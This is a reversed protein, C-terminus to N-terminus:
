ALWPTSLVEASGKLINTTGGIQDAMVLRKAATELSPPVVLLTPQVKLPKGNDGKVSRMSAIAASLNAESLEAKSAFAMQWLGYGANVRCDVGYRYLKQNFVGEDDPKDMAVFQYDRRKQFILPKVPKSTDLLFWAPGAGAQMNSVSVVSGDPQQVPHDTDFFYQGDYATQSFGNALLPFVLEDPHTKADYALQQMPITYIGLKDDELDDRDVGVTNEFSRNKIVYSHAALNQIVRDGIWERFSTTKGLWKYDEEATSSNVVMAVKAFDSDVTEFAKNFITQFGRLVNTMTARNVILGAGLFGYAAQNDWSAFATRAAEADGGAIVLVAAAIAVAGLSYLTKRMM